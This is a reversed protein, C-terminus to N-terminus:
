IWAFHWLWLCFYGIQGSNANGPQLETQIWWHSCFWACLKFYCLVQLPAKQKELDDVLNWPRITQFISSKSGFQTNGSQLTLELISMATLHCMYSRPAHSIHGITKNPWETFKLTVRASLYLTKARISNDTQLEFKCGGIAIFHYVYIRPAHFLHRIIKLRLGDFKLTVRALVISSNAGIQALNCPQDYSGCADSKGQKM